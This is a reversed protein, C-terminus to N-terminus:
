IVLHLGVSIFHLIKECEDLLSIYDMSLIESNYLESIYPNYPESIKSKPTGDIALSQKQSSPGSFGIDTM